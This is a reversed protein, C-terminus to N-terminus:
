VYVRRRASGRLENKKETGGLESLAEGAPFKRAKRRRRKERVGIVVLGGV